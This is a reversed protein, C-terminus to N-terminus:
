IFSFGARMATVILNYADIRVAARKLLQSLKFLQVM